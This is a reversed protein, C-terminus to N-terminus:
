GAIMEMFVRCMNEVRVIKRFFYCVVFVFRSMGGDMWVDDMKLAVFRSKWFRLM